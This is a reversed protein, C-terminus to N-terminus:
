YLFKYVAVQRQVNESIGFFCINKYKLIQVSTRNQPLKAYGSGCYRGSIFIKQKIKVIRLDRYSKSKNSEPMLNKEVIIGLIQDM